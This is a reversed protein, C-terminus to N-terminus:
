SAADSEAAGLRNILTIKQWIKRSLGNTLTEVQDAAQLAASDPFDQVYVAAIKSIIALMESCYGLYATMMPTPMPFATPDAAIQEPTPEAPAAAAAASPAGTPAAVSPAAPRKRLQHMDVIHALARLEHLAYLARRRKMRTELTVLFVIGGGLFVVTALTSDTFQALAGPERPLGDFRVEAAIATMAAVLGAILAGIGVRLPINPRGIRVVTAVAERVVQRLEEAVQLLGAKAFDVAIRGHIGDMTEILKESRLSRYHPM